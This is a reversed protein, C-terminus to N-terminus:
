PFRITKFVALDQFNIHDYGNSMKFDVIDSNSYLPKRYNQALHLEKIFADDLFDYDDVIDTLNYDILVKIIETPNRTIVVKPKDLDYNDVVLKYYQKDDVPRTKNTELIDAYIKDFTADVDYQELADQNSHKVLFEPQYWNKSYFQGGLILKNLIFDDQAEITTLEPHLKMISLVTDFHHTHKAKYLHGSTKDIVFSDLPPYQKVYNHLRTRFETSNILAEFMEPIHHDIIFAEPKPELTEYVKTMIAEIREDSLEKLEDHIANTIFTPTAYTLPYEHHTLEEIEFCKLKNEFYINLLTKAIMMPDYTFHATTTM